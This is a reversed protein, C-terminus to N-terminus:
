VTFGDKVLQQRIYSVVDERTIGEVDQLCKKVCDINGGYNPTFMNVSNAVSECMDKMIQLVYDLSQCLVFNEYKLSVLEKEDYTYEKNTDM